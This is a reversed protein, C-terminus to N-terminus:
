KEVWYSYPSFILRNIEKLLSDWSQKDRLWNIINAKSMIKSIKALQNRKTKFDREM